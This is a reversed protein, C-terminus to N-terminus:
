GGNVQLTRRAARHIWAATALTVAGWLVLHALVAAAHTAGAGLVIAAPGWLMWAFPTLRAVDRLWEPYISIPLLLGGFVFLLKQSVWYLPSIDPLWFALLGLLVHLVLLLLVAAAAAPVIWLWADAPPTRGTFCWAGVAAACGLLPARAAVRGAGHALWGGVYSAPRATQYAVDGRRIEAEIELHLAPVSMTIWEAIALYWVLDRADAALPMGAEAIARWLGSFIGLLVLLFVVHGGLAAREVAAQAMGLRGFALYKRAAMM